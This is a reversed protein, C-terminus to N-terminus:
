DDSNPSIRNLKKFLKKHLFTALFYFVEIVSIMSCGLYLGLFGGVNTLFERLGFAVHIEEVLINSM